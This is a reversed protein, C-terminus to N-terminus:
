GRLAGPALRRIDLADVGILEVEGLAREGTEVLIAKGTSRVASWPVERVLLDRGVRKVAAVRGRADVALAGTGGVGVVAGAAAFGALAAEAARVAEEPSDIRAPPRRRLVLWLAVALVAAAAVGILLYLIAPTM